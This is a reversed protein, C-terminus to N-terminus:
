YFLYDKAKADYIVALIIFSFLLISVVGVVWQIINSYDSIIVSFISFFISFLLLWIDVTIYETLKSLKMKGRIMLYILYILAIVVLPHIPTSGIVFVYIANSTSLLGIVFAFLKDIKNVKISNLM